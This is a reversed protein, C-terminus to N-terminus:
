LQVNLSLYIRMKNREIEKWGIGVGESLESFGHGSPNWSIGSLPLHASMSSHAEPICVQKDDCLYLVTEFKYYLNGDNLWWVLMVSRM